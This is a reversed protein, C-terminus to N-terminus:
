KSIVIWTYDAPPPDFTTGISCAVIDISTPTVQDQRAFIYISGAVGAPENTLVADGTVDHGTPIPSSGACQGPTLPVFNINETGKVLGIDAATLSGDTVKAGTVSNNPVSQLASDAKALSAKVSANLDKVTITGNKISKSTVSNKAATKVQGALAPQGVVLAVAVFAGVAAAVGTRLVEKM